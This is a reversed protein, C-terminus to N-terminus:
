LEDCYYYGLKCLIYSSLSQRLQLQRGQYKPLKFYQETASMRRPGCDEWTTEIKDRIPFGVSGSHLPWDKALDRFLCRAKTVIPHSKDNLKVGYHKNMQAQLNDCLGHDIDVTYQNKLFNILFKKLHRKARFEVFLM